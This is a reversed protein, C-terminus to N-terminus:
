RELEGAIHMQRYRAPPLGYTERFIQTFHSLSEFGLDAAITAVLDNGTVLRHSAENLRFRTLFEHPSQGTWRRFERRFQAPSYGTAHALDSVSIRPDTKLQRLIEPIAGTALLQPEQKQVLLAFVFGFVAKILGTRILVSATTHEDWGILIETLWSALRHRDEADPKVCIPLRFNGLFDTQEFLSLRLGLSLWETGAEVTLTRGTSLAGFCVCGPSINLTTNDQELLIQGTTVLWVFYCQAESTVNITETPVIKREMWVPEVIISGAIQAEM